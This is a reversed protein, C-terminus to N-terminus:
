SLRKSYGFDGRDSKTWPGGPHPPLPKAGIRVIAADVEDDAGAAAMRENGSDAGTLNDARPGGYM